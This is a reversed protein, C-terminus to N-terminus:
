ADAELVATPRAGAAVPGGALLQEVYKGLIDPELNVRTGARYAGATTHALTHPIYAVRFGAGDRDVVTLSVGDIAVFGKPVVYRLVDSPATFRVLTSAGEALLNEVVGCADVHGQVIHGGFRGGAALARELNVPDGPRLDGLNTRRLTEPVLEVTFGDPGVAVATLCAGNVAISDGVRSDAVVVRADIAVVALADRRSVAAVRGVEEVIGTFM